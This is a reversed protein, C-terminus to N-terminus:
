YGVKPGKSSADNPNTTYSVDPLPYQQAMNMLRQYQAFTLNHDKLTSNWDPTTNGTDDVGDMQGELRQEGHLTRKKIPPPQIADGTDRENVREQNAAAKLMCERASKDKILKERQAAMNATYENEKEQAETIEQVCNSLYQGLHSTGSKANVRQLAAELKIVNAESLINEGVESKIAEAMVLRAEFCPQHKLTKPADPNWCECACQVEQCVQQKIMLDHAQTGAICAVRSGKANVNIGTILEASKSNQYLVIYDESDLRSAYHICSKVAGMTQAIMVAAEVTMGIPGRLRIFPPQLHIATRNANSIFIREGKTIDVVAHGYSEFAKTAVVNIDQGEPITFLIKANNQIVMQEILDGLETMDAFVSESNQKKVRDSPNKRYPPIHEATYMKIGESINIHPTNSLFNQVNDNHLVEDTLHVIHTVTMRKASTHRDGVSLQKYLGSQPGNLCNTTEEDHAYGSLLKRIESPFEALDKPTVIYLTNKREFAEELGEISVFNDVHLPNKFFKVRNDVNEADKLPNSDVYVCWIPFPHMGQTRKLAVSHIAMSDVVDEETAYEMFSVDKAIVVKRVFGESALRQLQFNMTLSVAQAPTHKEHAKAGDCIIVWGKIGSKLRRWIRMYTLLKGLLFWPSAASDNVYKGNDDKPRGYPLNMLFNGKWDEPKIEDFRNGLTFLHYEKSRRSDPIAYAVTNFDDCCLENEWELIDYLHRTLEYPLVFCSKDICFYGKGSILFVQMKRAEPDDKHQCYWKVLDTTRETDTPQLIDDTDARDVGSLGSITPGDFINSAAGAATEQDWREMAMPWAGPWSPKGGNGSETPNPATDAPIVVKKDPQNSQAEETENDRERSRILNAVLTKAAAQSM